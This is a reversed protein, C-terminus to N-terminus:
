AVGTVNWTGALTGFSTLTIAATDTYTCEIDDPSVEKNSNNYVKIVPYQNGLEHTFTYVGAALSANDFADTSSASAAAWSNDGRLFTSSSATGTASLDGLVLEGTLDLKSYAIAAAADINDNDINGNVLNYLNSFNENHESASIVAGASFIHDRTILGM